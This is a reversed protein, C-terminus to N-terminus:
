EAPAGQAIVDHVDREPDDEAVRDGNDEAQSRVVPRLQRRERRVIDSVVREDLPRQIAKGVNPGRVSEPRGLRSRASGPSDLHGDRTMEWSRGAILHFLRAIRGPGTTPSTRSLMTGASGPPSRSSPPSPVM